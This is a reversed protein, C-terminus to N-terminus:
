EAIPRSSATLAEKTELDEITIRSSVVYHFVVKLFDCSCSKDPELWRKERSM